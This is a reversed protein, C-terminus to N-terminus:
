KKPPQQSVFLQPFIYTRATHELLYLYIVRLPIYYRLLLNSPSKCFIEFVSSDAISQYENTTDADAALPNELKIAEHNIRDFVNKSRTHVNSFRNEFSFSLAQTVFDNPHWFHRCSIFSFISRVWISMPLALSSSLLSLSYQATALMSSFNLVM